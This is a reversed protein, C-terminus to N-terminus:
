PMVPMREPARKRSFCSAALYLRVRVAESRAETGTVTEFM